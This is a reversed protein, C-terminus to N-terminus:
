CLGYSFISRICMISVLDTYVKFDLARLDSISLQM